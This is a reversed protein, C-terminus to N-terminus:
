FDYGVSISFSSNRMKKDFKIDGPDSANVKNFMDENLMNVFGVNYKAGFVINKYNVALGIDWGVDFRNYESYEDIEVVQGQNNRQMYYQTMFPDTITKETRTMGRYVGLAEIDKYTYTETDIRRAALAVALYPGTNVQLQCKDFNIRFSALIPIRLYHGRVLTTFKDESYGQQDLLDANTVDLKAKSSLMAYELGPQIYLWDNIRTNFVIGLSIGAGAKSDYPNVPALGTPSYNLMDAVGTLGGITVGTRVGVSLKKENIDQLQAMAPMAIAAILIALISKKM